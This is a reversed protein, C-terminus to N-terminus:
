TNLITGNLGPLKSKVGNNKKAHGISDLKTPPEALEMPYVWLFSLLLFGGRRMSRMIWGEMSPFKKHHAMAASLVLCIM